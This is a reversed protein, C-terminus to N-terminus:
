KKNALIATSQKEHLKRASKARRYDTPTSGFRQKFDRTFHSKDTLGTAYGVQKVQLFSQEMLEAAKDLRVCHLFRMPPMGIWIEFLKYLHPPSLNVMKAMEDVTWERQLDAKIAETLLYIRYDM